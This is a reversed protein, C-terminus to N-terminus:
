LMVSTCELEGYNDSLVASAAVEINNNKLTMRYNTTHVTEYKYREFTRLYM